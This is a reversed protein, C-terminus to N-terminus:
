PDGGEDSSDAGSNSRWQRFPHRVLNSNTFRYDGSVEKGVWPPLDIAESEHKLEVEAVVLGENDGFFEDVEWVHNGWPVEYRRKEILPPICLGLLEAADELPIRYEFEPRRIGQMRGKITLFADPGAIRVRITREPSIALYGQRIEVSPYDRWDDGNVLFKREIEVAM